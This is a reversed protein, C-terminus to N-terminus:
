VTQATAPALVPAHADAVILVPMRVVFSSGQSSTSGLEIVGSAAQVIRASISLGLGAGRRERRGALGQAFPKFLRTRDAEAIGPGTDTVQITLQMREGPGSALEAGRHVPVVDNLTSLSTTVTVSGQVTFKVANGVLNHLVQTLRVADCEIRTPLWFDHQTRLSLGKLEAQVRWPALANDLVDVLVAPALQLDLGGHLAREFDLTRECLDLLGNASARMAQTLQERRKGPLASDQLLGLGGSLGGLTGRLEHSLYAVFSARAQVQEEALLRARQLSRQAQRLRWNSYWLSGIVLSALGLALAAGAWVRAWPVGPAVEVRLWKNQLTAMETPTVADLGARLVGALEPLDRRVAFYLESDGDPVTGVIQLAGTHQSELLLNTVKLNGLALDARGDRVARLVEEQDAYEQIQLRPYRSRLSPVLFHRKLLALKRASPEDLGAVLERASAAVVVTPLSLFPGVFEFDAAREANRAAAVIVDLDGRQAREYVDAFSGGQELGVVMGVKAAVARTIDAALGDFGGAANTFAIPSFAADFGLRLSGYRKIWARQAASIEANPRPAATLLSRPLWKGAMAAIEEPGLDLNARNLMSALEPLDKRVAPGLATSPSGLSGRVALNATLHKEMYYVAVQRYGVFVDADGSAVALIAADANDFVKLNALPFRQRMVDEGGSGKEVVVRYNSFKEDLRLDTLNRNAVYIMQASFLPRAFTLYQLREPSESTFPVMDVEGRKVADLTDAHTPYMTYKLRLGVREALRNTLAIAFGDYRGQDAAFYYPPFESPLAVRVVPHNAVWAKETDSLPLRSVPQVAAPGSAPVAVTAPATAATSAVTWTLCLCLSLLASLDFWFARDGRRGM